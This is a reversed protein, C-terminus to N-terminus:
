GYKSQKVAFMSRESTGFIAVPAVDIIQFLLRAKSGVSGANGGYSNSRPWVPFAGRSACMRKLRSWSSERVEFDMSFRM